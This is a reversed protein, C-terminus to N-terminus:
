ENADQDGIACRVFFGIVIICLVKGIRVFFVYARDVCKEVSAGDIRFNHYIRITYLCASACRVIIIKDVDLRAVIRHLFSIQKHPIDFDGRGRIQRVQFGFACLSGIQAHPCDM